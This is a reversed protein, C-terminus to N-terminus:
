YWLKRMQVDMEQYSVNHNPTVDFPLNSLLITIVIIAVVLILIILRRDM